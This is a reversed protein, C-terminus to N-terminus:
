QEDFELMRGANIQLSLEDINADLIFYPHWGDCLPMVTDSNNKVSTDITLQNSKELSYTVTCSYNFPFGEDEKSYDYELKVFASNNNAGSDIVEFVADYLLGHIAEEGMFFKGIKYEHDNFVYRGKITRCVYPSLKAGKFGNTINKRADQPSTFGDIINISGAIKFSNLLAGFAYVEASTGDEENKLHIVPFIEKTDIYIKFAM